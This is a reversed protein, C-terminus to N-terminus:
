PLVSRAAQLTRRALTNWGAPGHTRARLVREPRRTLAAIELIPVRQVPAGLTSPGLRRGPRPSRMFPVFLPPLTGFSTQVRGLSPDLIAVGVVSGHSSIM